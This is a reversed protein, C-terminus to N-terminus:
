RHQFRSERASGLLIDRNRLRGTVVIRQSSGGTGGAGNPIVTGSQNPVFLEPGKEGVIYAGGGIVSGGGARFGLIKAFIQGFGKAEGVTGGSIINLIEAEIAAEILKKIVREIGHVISDFFTMLPNEGDLIAQFMDEFAPTLTDNILRAEQATEKSIGGLTKHTAEGAKELSNLLGEFGTAKDINQKLQGLKLGKTLAILLDADKLGLVVPITIGQNEFKALVDAIEKSFPSLDPRIVTTQGNKFQILGKNIANTLADPVDIFLKDWETPFIDPLDFKPKLRIEPHAKTDVGKFIGGFDVGKKIQEDIFGLLNIIQERAKDVPFQLGKVKATGLIDTAKKLNYIDETFKKTQEVTANSTLPEAFRKKQDDIARNARSVANELLFENEFVVKYLEVLKQEAGKILARRELLEIQTNIATNIKGINNLDKESLQNSKDAEKNYEQLAKIRQSMPIDLDTLAIKFKQLESVSQAAHQAGFQALSEGLTAIHHSTEDTQQSASHSGRTFASLGITAFSLAGTVISVALGLGGGGILSKLLAGSVSSGTLKAQTNLRQLSEVLPNINNAVGIIGYPLDQFIRGTNILVGNAQNTIPVIKAIGRSALEGGKAFDSFVKKGTNDLQILGANAAKPDIEIPLKIVEDAM